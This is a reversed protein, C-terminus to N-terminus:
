TKDKEAVKYDVSNIMISHHILPKDFGKRAITSKALPPAVLDRIEKQLQGKMREGMLNLVTDADYENRKLLKAMDDPWQKQNNAIFNSFFPRPPARGTGYNNWAAVAAVPTGDPYKANALFGVRLAGPRNLKELMERLKREFKAGGRVYAM